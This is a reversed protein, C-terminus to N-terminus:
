CKNRKNKVMPILAKTSGLPIQSPNIFNLVTNSLVIFFVLLDVFLQSCSLSCSIGPFDATYYM